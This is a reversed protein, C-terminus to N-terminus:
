ENLNENKMKETYVYSANLFEITQTYFFLMERIMVEDAFESSHYLWGKFLQGINERCQYLACNSFYSTMLEMPNEMEDTSLNSPQYNLNKLIEEM